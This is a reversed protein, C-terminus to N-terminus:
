LTVWSKSKSQLDGKCPDGKRTYAVEETVGRSVAVRGLSDNFWLFVGKLGLMESLEAVAAEPRGVRRFWCVLDLVLECGSWLV